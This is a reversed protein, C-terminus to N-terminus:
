TSIIFIKAILGLPPIEKNVIILVRGGGGGGGVSKMTQPQISVHNLSALYM